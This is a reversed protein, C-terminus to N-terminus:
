TRSEIFYIKNLLVISKFIKFFCVGDEKFAETCRLILGEDEELVYVDQIGTALKEGPQLFFTKEGQVLKKKGLQPKGDNGVPDLIVCYQRSNLV